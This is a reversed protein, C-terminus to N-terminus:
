DRSRSKSVRAPSKQVRYIIKETVMKTRPKHSTTSGSPLESNLDVNSTFDATIHKTNGTNESNFTERPRSTDECMTEANQGHRVEKSPTVNSRETRKEKREQSKDRMEKSRYSQDPAKQEDSRDEQAETWIDSAVANQKSRTATEVYRQTPDYKESSGVEILTSKMDISYCPVTYEETRKQWPGNKCRERCKAERTREKTSIRSNQFSFHAINTEKRPSSTSRHPIEDTGEEYLM